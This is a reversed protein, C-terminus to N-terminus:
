SDELTKLRLRQDAERLFGDLDIQGNIYRSLLEQNQGIFSAPDGAHKIYAGINLESYAEIMEPSIEYREYRWIGELNQRFLENRSEMERKEAGELRAEEKKREDYYATMNAWDEEFGPKIVPERISTTLRLMDQSQIYGVFAELFRLADEPYEAFPNIMMFSIQSTIAPEDGERVKLVLPQLGMTGPLTSASGLGGILTHEVELWADYRFDINELHDFRVTDVRGLMERLVPSTFSFADGTRECSAAYLSIAYEVLKRGLDDTDILMYDPHEYVLGDNWSDILDCLENFTGPVALGLLEFAAPNYSGSMDQRAYPILAIKSEFMALERIKPYLSDVYNELIVSNSLDYYFGKAKATAINIKDTDLTLIETYDDRLLFLQSLEATTQYPPRLVEVPLGLLAKSVQGIATEQSYGGYIRVMGTPLLSPDTRTILLQNESVILAKRGPLPVLSGGYVRAPYEGYACLEAEGALSMRYLKDSMTFYVMDEVEDYALSGIREQETGELSILKKEDIAEGASDIVQLEALSSGPMNVDFCIALLMGDKYSSVATILPIQIRKGEGSQLDFSLFATGNTGEGMFELSEYLLYLKGGYIFAQEPMFQEYREGADSADELLSSIDLILGEGTILTDEQATIPYIMSEMMDLGWLEGLDSLLATFSKDPLMHEPLPTLSGTEADLSYLTRGSSTVGYLWLADTRRAVSLVTMMGQPYDIWGPAEFALAPFLLMMCTVLCAFFPGIKKM